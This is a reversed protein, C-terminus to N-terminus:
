PKRRRDEDVGMAARLAFRGRFARLEAGSVGYERKLNVGEFDSQGHEVLRTLAEFEGDSLRIAYGKKLRTIKM